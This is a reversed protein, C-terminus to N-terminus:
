IIRGALNLKFSCFTKFKVYFAFMCCFDFKWLNFGNGSSSVNRALRKSQAKQAIEWDNEALLGAFITM